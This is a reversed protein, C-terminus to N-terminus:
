IHILSLIEAFAVTGVIAIGHGHAGDSALQAVMVDFRQGAVDLAQMLKRNINYTLSSLAAPSGKKGDAATVSCFELGERGTETCTADHRGM